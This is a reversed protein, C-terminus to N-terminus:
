RHSERVRAEPLIKALLKKAHKHNKNAATLLDNLKTRPVPVGPKELNAFLMYRVVQGVM